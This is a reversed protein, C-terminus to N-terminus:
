LSGGRLLSFFALLQEWHWLSSFTGVCNNKANVSKRISIRGRTIRKKRTATTHSAEFHNSSYRLPSPLEIKSKIKPHALVKFRSTASISHSFFIFFYLPVFHNTHLENLFTNKGRSVDLLRHSLHCQIASSVFVRWNQLNQMHLYLSEAFMYLRNNDTTPLFLRLVTNHAWAIFM